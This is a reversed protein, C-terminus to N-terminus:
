LHKEMQTVEHKFASNEKNGIELSKQTLFTDFDRYKQLVSVDILLYNIFSILGGIALFCLITKLIMPLIIFVAPICLSGLFLISIVFTIKSIVPCRTYFDAPILAIKNILGGNLSSLPNKSNLSHYVELEVKNIKNQLESWIVGNATLLGVRRM